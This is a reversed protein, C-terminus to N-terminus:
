TTSRQAILGSVEARSPMQEFPDGLNICFGGTDYVDFFDYANEPTESDWCGYVTYQESGFSYTAVIENGMNM